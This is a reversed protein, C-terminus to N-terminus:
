ENGFSVKDDVELYDFLTTKDVDLGLRACESRFWESKNPDTSYSFDSRFAESWAIIEEPTKPDGHESVWKAIAEDDAGTKVFKKFEDSDINKFAFLMRDVPCNFHYEGITGSIDARCKDITRPLIAFGHLTEYPSRPAEVALDKSDM